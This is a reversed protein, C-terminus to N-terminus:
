MVIVNVTVFYVLAVFMSLSASIVQEGCVCQCVCGRVCVCGCVCVCVCAGCVCVCCACVSGVVVASTWTQTM